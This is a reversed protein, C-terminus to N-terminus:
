IEPFNEPIQESTISDFNHHLRNWNQERDRNRLEKVVNLLDSMDQRLAAIEAAQDIVKDNETIEENEVLMKIKTCAIGAYKYLKNRYVNTFKKYCHRDYRAIFRKPLTTDIQTFMQITSSVSETTANMRIKEIDGVALGILLNVMVISLMIALAIIFLLVLAGFQFDGAINARVIQSYQVEGLMYGFSSFLSYGITSFDPLTFALIYLSLSFSLLLILAISMVALVTRCIRLFMSAYIGVLNSAIAAFWGCFTAVAGAPWLPTSPILFIYTCLITGVQVLNLATRISTLGKIRLVFVFAAFPIINLTCMLLTIVRIVNAAPTLKYESPTSNLSTNDNSFSSNGDAPLPAVAVFISLFIVHLLHAILVSYFIFGGYDRWKTHLYERVVPHTLLSVRNYKVMAQLAETSHLNPNQPINVNEKISGKYRISPIHLDDVSSADSVTDPESDNGSDDHCKKVHLLRVYKFCFKEWYEPHVKDMTSCMHCRDLVQKAVDPLHLILGIM